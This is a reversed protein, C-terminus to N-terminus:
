KEQSEAGTRKRLGNGRDFAFCQIIGVNEQWFRAARLIEDKNEAERVFAAVCTCRPVLPQESIIVRVCLDGIVLEGDELASRRKDSRHNKASHALVNGSVLLGMEDRDKVVFSLPFFEDSKRPGVVSVDEEAIRLTADNPLGVTREGVRGVVGELGGGAFKESRGGRSLGDAFSARCNWLEAEKSSAPDPRRPALFDVYDARLQIVTFRGAGPRHAATFNRRPVSFELRQRESRRESDVQKWPMTTLKAM